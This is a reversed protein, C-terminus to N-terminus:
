EGSTPTFTPGTGIAFLTPLNARAVTFSYHDNTAGALARTMVITRRHNVTTDSVVTVTSALSTGADHNALKREQVVAATATTAPADVIIAYPTDAMSTAGFAIGVWSGWAASETTNVTITITATSSSSNLSLDASVLYSSGSSDGLAGVSGTVSTLDASTKGGCPAISNEHKNVTLRYTDGDASSKTRSALCGSPLAPDDVMSVNSDLLPLQLVAAAHTCEQSTMEASNVTCKGGDLQSLYADLVKPKRTTCPCELIGQYDAGLPALSNRPQPGGIPGPSKDKTLRKNTNIIMPDSVFTVPSEILQAFGAPAGKYSARHENGNGESFV